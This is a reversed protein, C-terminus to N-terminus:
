NPYSPLGPFLGPLPNGQRPPSPICGMSRKQWLGIFKGQHSHLHVPEPGGLESGAM